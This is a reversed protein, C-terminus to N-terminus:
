VLQELVFNPKLTFSSIALIAKLEQHFHSPFSFLAELLLEFSIVVLTSLQQDSLELILVSEFALVSIPAAL